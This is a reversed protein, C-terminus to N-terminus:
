WRLPTCTQFLTIFKARGHDMGCKLRYINPQLALFAGLFEIYLFSRTRSCSFKEYVIM